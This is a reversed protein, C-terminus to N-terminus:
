DISSSGTSMVGNRSTGTSWSVPLATGITGTVAPILATQGNPTRHSTAPPARDGIKDADAEMETEAVVDDECEELGLGDGKIGKKWTISGCNEVVGSGLRTTSAAFAAAFAAAVAVVLDVVVDVVVDDDVVVDLPWLVVAVLLWWSGVVVILVVGLTGPGVVV